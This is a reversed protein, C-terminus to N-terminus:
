KELTTSVVVIFHNKDIVVPQRFGFRKISEAIGEIQSIPHQKANLAYPKLIEISLIQINM